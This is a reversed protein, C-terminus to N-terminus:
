SGAKWIKWGPKTVPFKLSDQPWQGCTTVHCAPRCVTQNWLNELATCFHYVHGRSARARPAKPPRPWLRDSNWRAIDRSPEASLLLPQCETSSFHNLRFADPICLLRLSSCGCLWPGPFRWLWTFSMIQETSTRCPKKAEFTFLEFHCSGQCWYESWYKWDCLQTGALGRNGHNSNHWIICVSNENGPQPDFALKAVDWGCSQKIQKRITPDSTDGGNQSSHPEAPAQAPCPKPCLKGPPLLWGHLMVSHLEVLKLPSQQVQQKECHNMRNCGKKLHPQVM